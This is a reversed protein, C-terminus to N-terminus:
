KLSLLLSIRQSYHLFKIIATRISASPRVEDSGPGYPLAEGLYAYRERM